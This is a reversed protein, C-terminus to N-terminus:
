GKGSKSKETNLRRRQLDKKVIEMNLATIKKKETINVLNNKSNLKIISGHLM